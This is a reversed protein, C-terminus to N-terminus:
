KEVQRTIPQRVGGTTTDTTPTGKSTKYIVAAVVVLVLVLILAEM